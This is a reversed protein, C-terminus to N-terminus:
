EIAGRDLRAAHDLYARRQETQGLQDYLDALTRAQAGSRTLTKKM